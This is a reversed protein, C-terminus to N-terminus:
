TSGSPTLDNSQADPQADEIVRYAGSESYDKAGVVMVGPSGSPRDRWFDIQAKIQDVILTGNCHPCRYLASRLFRGDCECRFAPFVEKPPNFESYLDVGLTNPCFECRYETLDSMGVSYTKIRFSHDGHPCKITYFNM